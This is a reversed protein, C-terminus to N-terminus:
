RCFAQMNHINKILYIQDRRHYDFEVRAMRQVVTNEVCNGFMNIQKRCTYGHFRHSALSLQKPLVDWKCESDVLLSTSEKEFAKDFAIAMELKMMINNTDRLKIVEDCVGAEILESLNNIHRTMHFISFALRSINHDYVEDNYQNGGAYSREFLNSTWVCCKGDHTTIGIRGNQLSKPRSTITKQVINEMDLLLLRMTKNKWSLLIFLDNAIEVHENKGLSEIAHFCVSILETTHYDPLRNQLLIDIAREFYAHQEARDQPRLTETNTLPNWYSDKWDYSHFTNEDTVTYKALIERVDIDSPSPLEEELRVSMKQYSEENYTNM